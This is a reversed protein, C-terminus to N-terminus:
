FVSMRQENTRNNNLLLAMSRSNKKGRGDDDIDLFHSKFPHTKFLLSNCSISVPRLEKKYYTCFVDTLMLDGGGTHHFHLGELPENHLSKKKREQGNASM